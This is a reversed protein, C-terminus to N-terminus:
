WVNKEPEAPAEGNSGAQGTGSKTTSVRTDDGRISSNWNNIWGSQDQKSFWTDYILWGGVLVGILALFQWVSLKM